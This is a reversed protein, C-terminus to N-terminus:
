LWYNKRAFVWVGEGTKRPHQFIEPSINHPTIQEFPKHNLNLFEPNLDLYSQNFVCSSKKPFQTPQRINHL